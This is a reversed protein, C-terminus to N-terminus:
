EGIRELGIFACALFGIKRRGLFWANSLGGLGGGEGISRKLASLVAARLRQQKM